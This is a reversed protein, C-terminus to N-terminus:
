VTHPTGAPVHGPAPATRPPNRCVSCSKGTRDTGLVHYGSMLAVAAGAVTLVGALTLLAARLPM